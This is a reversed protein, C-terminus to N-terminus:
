KTGGRYVLFTRVNSECSNLNIINGIVDSNLSVNPCRDLDSDTVIMGGIYVLIISMGFRFTLM